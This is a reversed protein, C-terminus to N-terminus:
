LSDNKTQQNTLKIYVEFFFSNNNIDIQIYVIYPM